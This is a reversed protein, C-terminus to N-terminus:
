STDRLPASGASSYNPSLKDILCLWGLKASTPTPASSPLLLLNCIIEWYRCVIEFRNGIGRPPHSYKLHHTVMRPITPSWGPSPPHGDKRLNTVMKPFTPSWGQSPLHGNMVTLVQDAEIHSIKIAIKGSDSSEGHQM